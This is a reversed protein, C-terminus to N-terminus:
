KVRKDGRFVNCVDSSIEQTTLINLDLNHCDVYQVTLKQVIM